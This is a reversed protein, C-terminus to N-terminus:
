LTGPLYHNHSGEYTTIVISPDQFSREVRKKVGCNQTTCRYYGRPYQSNKLAKQGYKRWRYGDELHDTESKTVFAFRPGKEKKEKKKTPLKSIKKSSEGGDEGDVKSQKFKKSINAEVQGEEEENGAETSSSIRVLSDDKPTTINCNYTSSLAKVHSIYDPSGHLNYNDSFIMHQFPHHLPAISSSDNYTFLLSQFSENYYLQNRSEQDSM